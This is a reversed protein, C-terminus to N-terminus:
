DSIKNNKLKSNQNLIIQMYKETSNNKKKYLM